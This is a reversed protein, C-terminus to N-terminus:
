KIRIYKSDIYQATNNDFEVRYADQDKWYLGKINRGTSVTGNIDKGGTNVIVRQGEKYKIPKM